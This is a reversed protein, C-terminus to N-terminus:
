TVAELEEALDTDLLINAKQMGTYHGIIFCLEMLETESFHRKLEAWSQPHIGHPEKLAMHALGMALITREDTLQESPAGEAM